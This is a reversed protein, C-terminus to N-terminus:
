QEQWLSKENLKIKQVVEPVEFGTGKEEILHYLCNESIKSSTLSKEFDARDFIHDVKTRNVVM